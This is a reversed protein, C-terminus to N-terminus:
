QPAPDPAAAEDDEAGVEFAALLSQLRDAREALTDVNASVDSMAASQRDATAAVTEVEDATERSIDAVEEVMSVAEETSAAQDDTAERIERVGSDTEEANAAVQSFAEVVEEVAAVAEDVHEQATRVDAATSSTQEQVDAILAEIDSASERTEEALDKVEDAVVAFGDGADGGGGARAAEINANLALMNTQEAIDSILDVIEGIEAMRDDLANVNEVTADVADRVERADEIATAATEEGAAAVEATEQSTEAVTGASAAVEEITASMENMEGVVEELMRRQEDAGEAIDQVSGDVAESAAVADAVDEDAAASAAAVDDAFSQIDRMATETEAMMENFASAIRTMAESDSEPDVRVGLEGDAARAMAASYSEAKAELHENLEEVEAQRAEAEAMAAEADAKAEEIEAKKAELDELEANMERAEALKERAEERSRETSYWHSMLAVALALVFTAHIGAWALPNTIAADHNYVLGPTTMGFYGHQVAVYAIGLFFPLWDEYIAVVAMVVFFHFHAEIYGGSFYVLVASASTLGLTALATRTRRGFRPVAALAGFAVVVGVGLLVRSVDFHPIRAGTVATETGEYVGLAFLLPVHAFLLVLVNRHRGRWTEAPISDGSPTYKVFERLAHKRRGLWASGIGSGTDHGSM